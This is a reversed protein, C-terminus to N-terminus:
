GDSNTAILNSDPKGIIEIAFDLGCWGVFSKGFTLQRFGKLDTFKSAFTNSQTREGGWFQVIYHMFIPSLLFARRKM